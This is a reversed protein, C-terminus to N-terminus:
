PTDLAGGPRLALLASLVAQKRDLNLADTQRALQGVKEWLGGWEELPRLRAVADAQGVASAKALAALRDRLLGMFLAFGEEAGPRALRDALAHAATLDLAPLGQFVRALAASLEAAGGEALALARGISGGALAVAAEAEAPPLDPAHQALLLAVESAALPALSLRRCRSRITPLLRAPAHCVLLILAKPPPEELIKLLANAAEASLDDAPDVIAVRWPSEAGTLRLFGIMGRVDDIAIETRLRGTRPNETRAVLRLDPHSGSAVKRAAPHGAPVALPSAAQPFGALVWTAAARAFTAKGIGPPGGIVWAHHLRGAAAAEAFAEAAARHGVLEGQSM